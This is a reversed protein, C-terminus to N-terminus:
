EEHELPHPPQAFESSTLAAHFFERNLQAIFQIPIEQPCVVACDYNNSCNGFGEKDMAEVMSIVRHTREPQGQPILAFQAVKAAVYLMASANECVAVCAGCGLCSAAQFALDAHKKDIPITNADPASGTNVSIYGSAQSVRDLASRDVVLDRIVPFANARWPEIYIEQGDNFHRMYLQCTTTAQNPGHPIGNIVLSCAGCIGERCDHDFAIPEEGQTILGENLTDLMELFSMNVDIDALSYTVMKGQDHVDKQRWIHLTFNM